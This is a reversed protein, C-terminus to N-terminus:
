KPIQSNNVILPSLSFRGSADIEIQNSSHSAIYDFVNSSDKGTQYLLSPQKVDLLGVVVYFQWDGKSPDGTEQLPLGATIKTKIIKNQNGQYGKEYEYNIYLGLGDFLFKGHSDFVRAQEHMGDIIAQYNWGDKQFTVKATKDSVCPLVKSDPTKMYV